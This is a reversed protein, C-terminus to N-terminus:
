SSYVFFIVLVCFLVVAVGAGVGAAKKSGEM